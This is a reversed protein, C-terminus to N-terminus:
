QRSSAYPEYAGATEILGLITERARPSSGAVAREFAARGVIDRLELLVWGHALAAAADTHVSFEILSRLASSDGSEARRLTQLYPFHVDSAASLVEPEPAISRSATKHPRFPSGTCAAVLFSLSMVVFISANTVLSAM